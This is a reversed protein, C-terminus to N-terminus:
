HYTYLVMEKKRCYRRHLPLKRPVRAARTHASHLISHFALVIMGSLLQWYNCKVNYVLLEHSFFQDNTDSRGGFVVMFDDTIAASHFYKPQPQLFLVLSTNLFFTQSHTGVGGGEGGVCVCVCVCVFPGAM